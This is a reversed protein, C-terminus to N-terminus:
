PFTIMAKTNALLLILAPECLAQDKKQELTTEPRFKPKSYGGEFLLLTFFYHFHLLFVRGANQVRVPNFEMILGPLQLTDPVNPQV